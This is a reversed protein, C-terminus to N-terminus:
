RGRREADIRQLEAAAVDQALSTRVRGARDIASM